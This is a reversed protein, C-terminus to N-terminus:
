RRSKVKIVSAEVEGKIEHYIDAVNSVLGSGAINNTDILKWQMGKPKLLKDPEAVSTIVFNFVKYMTWLNQTKSFKLEYTVPKSQLVRYEFSTGFIEEFRQEAMKLQYDLDIPMVAEFEDILESFGEGKFEHLIAQKNVDDYFPYWQGWVPNYDYTLLGREGDVDAYCIFSLAFDARECKVKDNEM